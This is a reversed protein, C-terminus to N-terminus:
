KSAFGFDALKVILERNLLINEPKIDRHSVNALGFIHIMADIIQKFFYRAVEEEFYNYTQLHSM